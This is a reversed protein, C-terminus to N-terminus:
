KHHCPQGWMWKGHCVDWEARWSAPPMFFHVISCQLFLIARSCDTGKWATVRMFANSPGMVALDNESWPFLSTNKFRQLTFCFINVALERKVGKLTFCKKENALVYTLDGPSNYPISMPQTQFRSVKSYIAQMPLQLMGTDWLHRIQPTRYCSLM